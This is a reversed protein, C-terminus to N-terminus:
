IMDMPSCYNITPIYGSELKIIKNVVNILDNGDTSLTFFKKCHQTWTSFVPDYCGQFLIYLSSHKSSNRIIASMEELVNGFRRRLDVDILLVICQYRNKSASNCGMMGLLSINENVWGANSFKVDVIYAVEPNDSIILAESM